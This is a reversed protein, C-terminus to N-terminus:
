IFTRIDMLAIGLLNLGKGDLTVGWIRDNWNNWEILIDDGTNLLQTKYPDFTFKFLLGRKMVDYKIQEWDARMQTRRGLRKAESPTAQAIMTHEEPSCAKHAQYFNEVSNYHEGNVKFPSYVMNSFWNKIWRGNYEFTEPKYQLWNTTTKM